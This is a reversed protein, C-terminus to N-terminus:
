ADLSSPYLYRQDPISIRFTTGNGLSSCVKIEGSLEMVLKNVIYLGLGNSPENRTPQASLKSFKKFMKEQDEVSIGPGEDAIVLSVKQDKLTVFLSIKTGEQSFKFANSLLNDIIRRLVVADTNFLGEIQSVSINLGINKQKSLSSYNLRIESMLQNLDVNVPSIKFQGSEYNNIALLNNTLGHADNITKQMVQTYEVHRESLGQELNMLRLLGEIRNLPSRLDHAVVGLLIDKEENLNALSEIATKLSEKQQEIKQNLLALHNNAKSKHRYMRFLLITITSILVVVFAVAVLLFKDQRIRMDKLAIQAELQKNKQEEGKLYYLEMMASMSTSHTKLSISDNLSEFQKLFEKAQPMDQAAAFAYSLISLANSMITTAEVTEAIKLAKNGYRIAKSYDSQDYHLKALLYSIDAIEFQLNLSDAIKLATLYYEDAEDYSGESKSLSGFLANAHLFARRNKLQGSLKVATNLYQRAVKFSKRDLHVKGLNLLIYVKGIPYDIQQHINLAEQYYELAMETDHQKLYTLGINSNADAIAFLDQRKRSIELFSLLRDLAAPFSGQNIFILGTFLYINGIAKKFDKNIAIKLSNDCYNLGRKYEGQLYCSFCLSNLANVQGQAYSIVNSLHLAQQAYIRVSDPNLDHQDLAMQNLKDIKIKSLQQAEVSNGISINILLFFLTIFSRMYWIFNTRDWLALLLAIVRAERTKPTM